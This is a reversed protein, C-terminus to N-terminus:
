NFWTSRAITFGEMLAYRHLQRVYKTTPRLWETM